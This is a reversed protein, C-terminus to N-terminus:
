SLLPREGLPDLRDDVALQIYLDAGATPAATVEVYLIDGPEVEASAWDNTTKTTGDADTNDIDLTASLVSAPATGGAAIKLVDVSTGGASGTTLAKATLSNLLGKKTVIMPDGIRGTAITGLHGSRLNSDSRGQITDAFEAPTVGTSKTEGVTM